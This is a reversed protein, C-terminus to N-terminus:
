NLCDFSELIGSDESVRIMFSWNKNSTNWSASGICNESEVVGGDLEVREIFYATVITSLYPFYIAGFGDPYAEGWWTSAYIENAM